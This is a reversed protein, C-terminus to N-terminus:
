LKNAVQEDLIEATNAQIGIFSCNENGQLISRTSVISSREFSPTAPPDPLTVEISSINPLDCPTSKGTISQNTIISSQLSPYSISYPHRNQLIDHSRQEIIGNEEKLPSHKEQDNNSIKSAILVKQEHIHELQSSLNADPSPLKQFIEKLYCNAYFSSKVENDPM